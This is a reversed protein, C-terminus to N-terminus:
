MGEHKLSGTDPRTGRLDHANHDFLLHGHPVMRELVRIAHVVPAIAVWPVEREVGASHHNGDEDIATKYENGRILHRGVAGNPGPEPCCGTRLGLVEGPRMGTLYAIVIFCATGLHRMLDVTENFDMAERWPRGAVQGTVPSAMPCPGPYQPALEMIRYRRVFEQIHGKCAGTLGGVYYRALTVHGRYSTTPLPAGAKILPILLADLADKGPQNARAAAVLQQRVKWAALIDDAFDDVLRIAWVLLPGMTEEALVETANEGGRGTAAPLYDDAGFADWPPRGVGAPQASLEDFAWLRTLANLATRARERSRSTDRIHLGYEHLVQSDCKVLTHIDHKVLWRALRMWAAVTTHTGQLSLRSRVRTGRDKLFTPRLSGNIVHWAVLRMEDRFVEPCNRWHLSLRMGSPNDTMPALSWVDDSYRANLHANLAVVHQDAIVPSGASPIPLVYPDREALVVATM